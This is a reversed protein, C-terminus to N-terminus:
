ARRRDDGEEDEGGQEAAAIAEAAAAAAQELRKREEPGASEMGPVQVIVQRRAFEIGAEEFKKQVAQYIERRITFQKGPKTMFKGRVIIGSEDVDFVGQSKFPQLFDQGYEPHQLLEKGIEKFIRKVKNIDTDFPVRFKLKVIVWDRSYNTLKQIEGYPVTHLPGRHHRLRMSRISIKEVTGRTGGIDVYEGIRFADDVLFFVGSVVDRVLTQAGFGIALGLIGAGALLPAINVGFQALVTLVALVLVAVQATRQLIPLVSGLRSGGQGGLEGGPMGPEGQGMRELALQRSALINITEWLAYAILVVLLVKITSSALQAGLGARALSRFDLGLMELLLAFVALGAMVRALRVLGRQTALRAERTGPEDVPDVPYLSRVLAKVATDIFPVAVILGIITFAASATLAERMDLNVLLESAVFEVVILAIAIGPWARAFFRVAATPSEEGGLLITAFAQRSAWIAWILVALVVVKLAFGLRVEGVAEAAGFHLAWQQFLYAGAIAAIATVVRRHLAVAGADDLHCLRLAPRHPALLFRSVAAGTRTVLVGVIVVMATFRDPSRPPFSLLVVLTAGVANALVASLDLLLRLVLIGLLAPLGTPRLEVMRELAGAFLWRLGREFGYGVLLAGAVVAILALLASAGRGGLYTAFAGAVVEPIRPLSALTGGLNRWLMATEAEFDEYLRALDVPEAADGRDASTLMDLRALLLARVEEDTLRAVMERLTAPDLDAAPVASVGTGSASDGSAPPEGGPSQAVAAASWFAMLMLVLIGIWRSM